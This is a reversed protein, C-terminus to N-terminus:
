WISIFLRVLYTPRKWESRHFKLVESPVYIKIDRAMDVYHKVRTPLLLDVDIELAEVFGTSLVAFILLYLHMMTSGNM